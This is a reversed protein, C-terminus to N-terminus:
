NIKLKSEWLKIFNDITQDYENELMYLNQLLLHKTEFAWDIDKMGYAVGYKFIPNKSRFEEPSSYKKDNLIIPICGCMGAAISYFSNNDFTLFYKYKNFNEKLYPYAGQTKWDGIDKSRFVELIDKYNNPTDKHLIHCFGSRENNLNILEKFHFDITTLNGTPQYNKTKFNMYNFVLDTNEWQLEIDEQPNYLLWRTVNSIKFPNGRDIETYIIITKHPNYTFVEWSYELVGNERTHKSPIIHINEHPYEPQTFVYVNCGRQALKHALLHCAMTGGTLVEGFGFHINIVFNLKNNDLLKM